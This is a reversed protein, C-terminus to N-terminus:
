ADISSYNILIPTQPIAHSFHGFITFPAQGLPVDPQVGLSFGKQAMADQANLFPTPSQKSHVSKGHSAVL